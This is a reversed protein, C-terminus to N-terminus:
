GAGIGGGGGGGGGGGSFGGSFGGGSSFGSGSSRPTAAAAFSSGFSAGFSGLTAFGSLPAGGNPLPHYWRAYTPSDAVEPVRLALGRVLEESVGLAVAYVLYREWLVLHGSPADELESFDRLFHEVGEWQAAREAGLKTRQRLTITLVSQLLAWAIAAAGVWWAHVIMAFAGVVAVLTATALNATFVLGRQSQQYKKRDYADDVANQFGRWWKQAGSTHAAAWDTLEKQTIEDGDHFLRQMVRDEFDALQEQPPSPAKHFRYDKKDPLLAREIKEEEITLWGRQALDIVTAGFSMPRMHGWHLLTDVVAPSDDPLDRYYEGIDPTKPERGYRLFLFGYVAIGLVIVVPTVVNALDERENAQRADRAAAARAANAARAWSREETLIQPLRPSGTPEVAFRSSPIAVRGEVFSGEPVNPADWTVIDEDRSVVGTLEGHGWARVDGAGPPLTLRATVRGVRPHQDGVWKWYLEAVDPGVAAAGLVTYEVDFTRQEDKADFFWQLNYPAGVSTLEEGGETVRMDTIQYPGVPIPRTGFSFPGHFDYTIHEVVHMSGDARLEADVAVRPLSFSKEPKIAGFIAGFAGLLVIFGIWLPVILLRFRRV